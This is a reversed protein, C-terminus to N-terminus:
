DKVIVKIHNDIGRILHPFIHKILLQKNLHIIIPTGRRLIRGKM